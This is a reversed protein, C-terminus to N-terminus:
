WARAVVGDAPRPRGHRALSVWFVTALADTSLLGSTVVKSGGSIVRPSPHGDTGSRWDEIENVTHALLGQILM